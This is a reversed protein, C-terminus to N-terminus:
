DCNKFSQIYACARRSTYIALPALGCGCLLLGALNQNVWQTMLHLIVPAVQTKYQLWLGLPFGFLTANPLSLWFLKGTDITEITGDPQRRYTLKALQPNPAPLNMQM